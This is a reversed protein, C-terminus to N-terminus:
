VVTFVKLPDRNTGIAEQYNGNEDRKLGPVDWARNPKGMFTDWNALDKGNFLPRWPEEAAFANTALLTLALLAPIPPM